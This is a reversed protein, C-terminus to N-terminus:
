NMVPFMHNTATYIHLIFALKKNTSFRMQHGDSRTRGMFIASLLMIQHYCEYNLGDGTYQEGREDQKYDSENRFLVVVVLMQFIKVNM